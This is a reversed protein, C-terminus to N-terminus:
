DLDIPSKKVVRQNIEEHAITLYILLCTATKFLGLIGSIYIIIMDVTSFGLHRFMYSYTYLITFLRALGIALIFLAILYDQPFKHEKKFLAICYLGIILLSLGLGLALRFIEQINIGAIVADSFQIVSQSFAFLSSIVVFIGIIKANKQDLIAFLLLSIFTVLMFALLSPNNFISEEFAKYRLIEIVFSFIAILIIVLRRKNFSDINIM